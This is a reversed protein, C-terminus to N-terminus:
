QAPVSPVARGIHRNLFKEMARFFDFRNEENAFGHGENEKLMYEVEVGRKRLAEVIQDSEAQNVRPDKAGQAVFLPAKIQDVHFVPSAAELMAKDKVPDGVKVKMTEFLPKWYPPITNMFTLLNSVGVYDVGCAYLDPTFTVGALTAYGGYSAGYICIRKPDAIKQKILWNVGDTIDDQMKRGWQKFSAEWFKRGYGTSGRFNPQFVAYGRSALFQVDSSYGWEDRAWPGGHPNVVVPLNKAEMGRPVTLYGQIRLGDRSKYEITRMESMLEPRIWPAVEGLPSIQRTRRDFLYYAGRSVDAHTKVLWQQEDRTDNAMVIDMKPFQSKLYNWDKQDKPHLFHTERRDTVVTVSGINKRVQSYTLNSIDYKPHSYVERRIFRNAPLKPDVEVLRTLNSKMDTIVFLRQNDETFAVPYFKNRFDTKYIPEFGKGKEKEFYFVLNLGDNAVGGRPNGAHDVLWGNIQYKNEAVMRSEGTHINVRYLDFVQKDRQNTSVLIDTESVEALDDDVSARVGPFPTLDKDELTETNVVFVHFNEDGGLDKSYLLHRNGKWSVSRIDRDEVFTIQKQQDPKGLPHVFVNLRNKWPKLLALSQGDPSIRYGFLEPNRFFEELPMENAKAYAPARQGLHPAQKEPSFHSCAAIAVAFFLVSLKSRM